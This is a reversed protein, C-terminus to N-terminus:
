LGGVEVFEPRMDPTGGDLRFHVNELRVDDARDIYLGYAPFIHPWFIDPTPYCDFKYPVPTELAKRSAEEGAGAVTIDIDKLVVNEIRFGDVGVIASAYPGMAKGRVNSIRINRLRNLINPKIKVSHRGVKRFDSRIFIPECVGDVIEMGDVVVDEVAGGDVCEFALGCLMCGTPYRPTIKCQYHFSLLKMPTGDELKTCIRRGVDCRIDEYRVNRVLGHTATGIKFANAQGRATCRRFVINACVFNPDNSKLCFPDDGTDAECDEVLVNKAEIDFGDNNWNAHSDIKVRKAVVGDCAKIVIGWCPSDRLTFDELRIDKAETFFIGRPRLGEQCGRNFDERTPEPWTGGRGNIVGKGTIAVNTVGVGMVVASWIGESYPREVLHYNELGTLANLEAGDELHLEVNSRMLLGGVRHRGAPISVRGGGVRAAEDIADQWRATESRVNAYLRNIRIVSGTGSERKAPVARFRVVHADDDLDEALMLMYPYHLQGYDARLRIRRFDGNDVSVELDGADPGATLLAGLANGSFWVAAMANTRDCWLVEGQTFYRRKSGPVSNWDLDSVRWGDETRVSRMDLERGFCLSGEDIPDPLMAAQPRSMPDFVDSITEMVVKAGFMCGEQSPHCDKYDKWSFGGAKASAALASGVDAIGLGYREAVQRAAAYPVPVDGTQLLEYQHRNVMQAIVVRCKPNAMLMRRVIGELGRVCRRLDFHGDQDDNVAVDVILLDPTDHALVDRDMRLAGTDSCTSSLGAAIEVFDVFPHRDRLMRMVLPRYGNMETISGGLFAVTVRAAANTRCRVSSVANGDTPNFFTGPGEGQVANLALPLFVLSGQLLRLTKM